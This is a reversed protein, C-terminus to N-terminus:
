SRSPRLLSRVGRWDAHETTDAERELPESVIPQTLDVVALLDDMEVVGASRLRYDLYSELGMWALITRETAEAEALHQRDRDRAFRRGAREVAELVALHAEDLRAVDEPDFDWRRAVARNQVLRLRSRPRRIGDSARMHRVM